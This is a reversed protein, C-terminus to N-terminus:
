NTLITYNNAKLGKLTIEEM